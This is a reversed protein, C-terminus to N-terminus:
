AAHLKQISLGGWACVRVRVCGCEFVCASHRERVCERVCFVCVCVRVCVCVEPSSVDSKKPLGKVNASHSGSEKEGDICLTREHAFDTLPPKEKAPVSEIRGQSNLLWDDRSLDLTLGDQITQMDRQYEVLQNLHTQLSTNHLHHYHHSTCLTDSLKDPPSWDAPLAQEELQHELLERRHLRLAESRARLLESFLKDIESVSLWLLSEDFESTNM